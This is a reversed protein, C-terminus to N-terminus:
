IHMLTWGCVVEVDVAKVNVLLPLLYYKSAYTSMDHHIVAISEPPLNTLNSLFLTSATGDFMPFHLAMFKLAVMPVWRIHSVDVSVVSKSNV